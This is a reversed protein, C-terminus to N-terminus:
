TIRIELVEKTRATLKFRDDLQRGLVWVIAEGSLLVWVKEKEPLPVKRDTLLDSINKRGRMGLPVFWDSPQWPRLLLPFALTDADLAAIEQDPQLLYTAMPFRQLKLRWPGATVEAAGAPISIGAPPVASAAPLPTILLHQRDKVLRHTASFFQKGPPGPLARVLEQAQRYTFGYPRLLEHLLLPLGTKPLVDTRIQVTGAENHCNERLRGTQETIIEEAERLRQMTHQFTESFNPNLEELLPVVRHRLFNRQYADTANSSDERWALQHHAAYAAIDARTANLLPRVLQGTKPLMGRLGALGTGRVLNLLVTEISDNRHHATLIYDYGAQQRIQELWEYRLARAAMQISIGHGAAHAETSFRTHHFPAQYQFALQQVFAEDADSAVGRLGFNVHAVGTHYGAQHLAHLLAVSDLGGSVAVLLRQSPTFLGTQLPLHPM